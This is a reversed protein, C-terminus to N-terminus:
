STRWDVGKKIAKRVMVLYSIGITYHFSPFSMVAAAEVRIGWEIKENLM